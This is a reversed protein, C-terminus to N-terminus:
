GYTLAEMFEIREHICRWGRWINIMGPNGDGRRGLFGGLKAIIMLADGISFGEKISVKVQSASKKLVYITIKDFIKDANMSSFNRGMQYLWFIHWSVISLMSILTELRKRNKLRAKEVGFGSKLIRHFCEISWRQRYISIIECAEEFTNVPLNTLLRWHIPDGNDSVERVEVVGVSLPELRISKAERSRQPPRLSTTISRIHCTHDKSDKQIIITGLKASRSLKEDLTSSDKVRGEYTRRNANSRVVFQSKEDIAVQLFEYIDCERDAVHIVQCKFDQCNEKADKLHEIWRHSAKEEIPVTKNIGRVFTETQGRKAKIQDYTFTTQKLIGLPVGESSIAFSTHLMVGRVDHNFGEKSRMKIGLDETSPFHTYILDTTDQVILIRKPMDACREKTRLRHSAMIAEPTIKPNQFFRYAAKSDAFSGCAANISLEPNESISEMLKVLRKNLRRDDLDCYAFEASLSGLM